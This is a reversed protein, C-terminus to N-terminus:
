TLIFVICCVKSLQLEAKTDHLEKKITEIKTTKEEVLLKFNLSKEESESRILQLSNEVQNLNNTTDKFNLEINM